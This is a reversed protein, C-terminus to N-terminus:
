EGPGECRRPRAVHEHLSVGCHQCIDDVGWLHGHEPEEDHDHPCPGPGHCVQPTMAREKEVPREKNAARETVGPQEGLM